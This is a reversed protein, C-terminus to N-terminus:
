AFFDKLLIKEGTRTVFGKVYGSKWEDPIAPILEVSGKHSQLLSECVAEAIGFNGDIQFPPHADFMNSYISKTFMNRIHRMVKNGEKLRAYMCAIWANSWGTHGGGNEMRVKLTERVANEYKEGCLIDSPHFGYLHSIHRHGPECEDFAKEWELIRGDKGIKAPIIKKIIKQYQEVNEMLLEGAKITKDFVDYIISMDMAFGECVVCEAGNYLFRNEPSTSPCTVIEGCDNEYTWDELLDCFFTEVRVQENAENDKQLDTKLTKVVNKFEEVDIVKLLYYVVKYKIAEQAYFFDSYGSIIVVKIKPKNEYIWKAM